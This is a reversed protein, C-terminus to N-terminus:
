LEFDEASFTQLPKPRRFTRKLPDYKFKKCPADPVATGTRKCQLANGDAAEAAFECLGCAPEIGNGVLKKGFVDIVKKLNM